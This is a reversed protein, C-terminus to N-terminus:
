LSVTHMIKSCISITFCVFAYGKLIKHVYMYCVCVCVFVCVCVCTYMICVCNLCVKNTPESLTENEGLDYVYPNETNKWMMKEEGIEALQSPRRAPGVNDYLQFGSESPPLSSNLTMDSTTASLNSIIYKKEILLKRCLFLFFQYSRAGCM